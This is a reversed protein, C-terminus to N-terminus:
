RAKFFFGQASLQGYTFPEQKKGTGAYVDDHVMRFLQNIELGPAEM